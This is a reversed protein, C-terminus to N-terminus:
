SPFMAPHCLHRVNTNAKRKCYVQFDALLGLIDM